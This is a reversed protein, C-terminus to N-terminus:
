VLIRLLFKQSDLRRERHCLHFGIILLNTPATRLESKRVVFNLLATKLIAEQVQFPPLSIVGNDSPPNQVRRNVICDPRWGGVDRQSRMGSGEVFAVLFQGIPLILVSLHRGTHVSRRNELLQAGKIALALRQRRGSAGWHCRLFAFYSM